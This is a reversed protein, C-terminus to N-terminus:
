LVEVVESPRGGKQSPDATALLSQLHLIADAVRSYGQAILFEILEDNPIACDKAKRLIIDLGFQASSLKVDVIEATSLFERIQARSIKTKM